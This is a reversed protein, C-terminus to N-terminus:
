ISTEILFLDIDIGRERMYDELDIFEEGRAKAAESELIAEREDETMNKETLLEIIMTEDDIIKEDVLIM